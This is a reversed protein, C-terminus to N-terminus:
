ALLRLDDVTGLHEVLVHALALLVYAQEEGVRLGLVPLAAVLAIQVDDDEVLDVGDALRACGRGQM